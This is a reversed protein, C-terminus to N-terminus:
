RQGVECEGASAWFACQAHKNECISRIRTYKPDTAVTKQMYERAANIVALIEASSSDDGLVQPEGMDAGCALDQQISRPAAVEYSAEATVAFSEQGFDDATVLGENVATLVSGDLGVTSSGAALLAADYSSAASATALATLLLAAQKIM